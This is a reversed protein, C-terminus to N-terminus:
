GLLSIEEIMELLTNQSAKQLLKIAMRKEGKKGEWVDGFHGSGLKKIMTISEIRPYDTKESQQDNNEEDVYGGKSVTSVPIDNV